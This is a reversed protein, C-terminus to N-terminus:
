GGASAVVRRVRFAAVVLAATAVLSAVLFALRLAEPAPRETYLPQALAAGAAGAAVLTGLWREGLLPTKAAV